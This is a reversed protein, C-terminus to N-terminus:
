DKNPSNLDIDIHLCEFMNNAGTVQQLEVLYNM